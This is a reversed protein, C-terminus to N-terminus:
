FQRRKGQLLEPETKGKGARWTEFEVLSYPGTGDGSAWDIHGTDDAAGILIHYDSLLYPFDANGSELTFVLTDDDKSLAGLSEAVSKAKSTSNEGRHHEISAIVDDLTLSKGSHFEIGKKLKARWVSADASPELTEVLEPVAQGNANVEVLLNRVTGQNLNIMFIDSNNDPNMSDGTNAGGLGMRYIGGKKPAAKAAESYLTPAMAGVGLVMAGQMFRRRSMQNESVQKQLKKIENELSMSYKEPFSPNRYGQSCLGLPSM